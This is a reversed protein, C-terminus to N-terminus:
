VSNTGGASSRASARSKRGRLREVKKPRPRDFATTRGLHPGFPESSDWGVRSTPARPSGRVVRRANAAPDPLIRGVRRDRAVSIRGLCGRDSRVANLDIYAAVTRLAKLDGEVLVSKFRESWVPGFRERSANFSAAFRQKITKMLWSVDHMRRLRM